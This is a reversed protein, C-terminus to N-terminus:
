VAEPDETAQESERKVLIAPSSIPLSTFGNWVYRTGRKQGQKIILGEEELEGFLRRLLGPAGEADKLGLLDQAQFSSLYGNEELAAVLKPKLDQPDPKTLRKVQLEPLSPLPYEIPPHFPPPEVAPIATPAEETEVLLGGDLLIDAEERKYMIITSSAPIGEAHLAEFVRDGIRKKQESTLRPAHIIVLAM